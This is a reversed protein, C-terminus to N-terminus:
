HFSMGIEIIHSYCHSENLVFTSFTRPELKTKLSRDNFLTLSNVFNLLDIQVMVVSYETFTLIGTHVDRSESSFESHTDGVLYGFILLLM